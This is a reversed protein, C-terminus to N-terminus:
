LMTVTELWSQYERESSNRRFLPCMNMTDEISDTSVLAYWAHLERLRCENQKAESCGFMHRDRQFADSEGRGNRGVLAARRSPTRAYQWLCNNVHLPGPCLPRKIEDREWSDPHHRMYRLLCFTLSDPNDPLISQINCVSVFCVTEGCLCNKGAIPKIRLVDRRRRTAWFTRGDQRLVKQAFGFTLNKLREHTVVDNLPLGLKQCVLNAFEIETLRVDRHLFKDGISDKLTPCTLPSLLGYQIKRVTPVHELKLCHQLEGFITLDCLYKLMYDQTQNPGLHRVRKSALHMNLKHSAEAAQTCHVNFGGASIVQDVWHQHTYCFHSHSYFGFGGVSQDDDTDDTDSVPTTHSKIVRLYHNPIMTLLPTLIMALM